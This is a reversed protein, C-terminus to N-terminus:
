IWQGKFEFGETARMEAHVGARIEEMEAQTAPGDDARIWKLSAWAEDHRGKKTLWRTSETVTLMGLGLIAAPLLQLGIPIQWQSSSADHIGRAVAYDVWYSM